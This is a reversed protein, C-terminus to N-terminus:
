NVGGQGKYLLEVIERVGEDDLEFLAVLEGEVRVGLRRTGDSMRGVWLGNKRDEDWYLAHGIGAPKVSASM